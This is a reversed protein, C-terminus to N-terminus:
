RAAKTSPKPAEADLEMSRPAPAPPPPTPPCMTEFLDTVAFCRVRMGAAVPAHGLAILAHRKGTGVPVAVPHMM